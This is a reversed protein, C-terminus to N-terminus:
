AVIRPSKEFANLKLPRRVPQIRSLFRALSARYRLALDYKEIEVEMGPSRSPTRAARNLSAMKSRARRTAPALRARSSRNKSVKLSVNSQTLGCPPKVANGERRSLASARGNHSAATARPTRMDGPSQKPM